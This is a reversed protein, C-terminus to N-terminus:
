DFILAAKKGDSGSHEFYNVDRVLSERGFILKWGSPFDTKKINAVRDTTKFNNQIRFTTLDSM